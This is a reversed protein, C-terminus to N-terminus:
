EDNFTLKFEVITPFTPSLEGDDLYRLRYTIDSDDDTIDLGGLANADITIGMESMINYLKNVKEIFPHNETLRKIAM